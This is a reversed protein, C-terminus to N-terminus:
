WFKIMGGIWLGVLTLAKLTEVLDDKKLLIPNIGAISRSELYAAIRMALFWGITWTIWNM